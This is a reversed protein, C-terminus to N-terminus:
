CSRTARSSSRIASCPRCRSRSRRPSAGRMGCWALITSERWDVKKGALQFALTQLAVWAYRTLVVAAIVGVVLLLSQHYTMFSVLAGHLAVGVLVFVIANVVFISTEWFGTSILRAAPLM